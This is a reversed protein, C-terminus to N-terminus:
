GGSMPPLFAVEDAPGLPHDGRVVAKNVAVQVGKGGLAAGLAPDESLAAILAAISSPLAMERERWGAADRLRGLMLVKGL